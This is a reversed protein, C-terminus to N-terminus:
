FIYVGIYGIAEASSSGIRVIRVSAGRYSLNSAKVLFNGSLLRTINSFEKGAASSSKFQVIVFEISGASNNFFKGYFKVTGPPANAQSANESLVSSATYNNYGTTSDVQSTSPFAVHPSTSSLVVALVVVIVVVVAGIGAAAYKLQKSAM